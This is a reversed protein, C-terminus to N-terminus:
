GRWGAVGPILPSCAMVAAVLVAFLAASVIIAM